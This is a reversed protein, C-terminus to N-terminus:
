SSLIRKRQFLSSLIFLPPYCPFIVLILLLGDGGCSPYILFFCRMHTSWMVRREVYPAHIGHERRKMHTDHIGEEKERRNLTVPPMQQTIIYNAIHPLQLCSSIVTEKRKPISISSSYLPLFSFSLKRTHPHLQTMPSITLLFLTLSPTNNNTSIHTHYLAEIYIYPIIRVSRM